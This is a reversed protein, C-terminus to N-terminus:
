TWISFSMQYPLAQTFEKPSKNVGKIFVKLDGKSIQFDFIKLFTLLGGDGVVGARTPLPVPNYISINEKSIFRLYLGTTPTFM